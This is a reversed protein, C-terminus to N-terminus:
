WKGAVYKGGEHLM